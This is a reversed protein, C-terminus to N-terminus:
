NIWNELETIQRKTFPSLVLDDNTLETTIFEAPFDMTMRPRSIKGQIFLELYDRNIELKGSM